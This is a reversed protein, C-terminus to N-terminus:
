NKLNGAWRPGNGPLFLAYYASDFTQTRDFNNNAFSPSTFSTNTNTIAVLTDTLAQRLSLANSASFYRGGGRKATEALLPAASQAGQSFGITFTRVTQMHEVESGNALTEASDVLDNHYLYSALAPLYSEGSSETAFVSYDPPVVKNEAQEKVGIQGLAMVDGNASTDLSPLGDTIYIVYAVDPCVSFPSTYRGETEISDDRGPQNGVYDNEAYDSDQKGYHVKHASFYNYAEFLTECLPTNTTASINDITNLLSSKASPTMPEIGSVIRGGDRLGESPFNMNFLTLGFDVFATTNVVSTIASKAIELRTQPQVPLTGALSAARWRLYNASYLTVMEGQGLSTVSEAKNASYPTSADSGYVGDVPFGPVYARGNENIANIPDNAAIDEYCDIAKYSSQVRAKLGKWYGTRGSSLYEGVFGTFRGHEDLLSQSQHCGNMTATFQQYKLASLSTNVNGDSVGQTFYIMGDQYDHEPSIAEYTVNADFDRPADEEVTLMSGSNDFIILVKASHGNGVSYDTVYLQTDDAHSAVSLLSVSMVWCAARKFRM